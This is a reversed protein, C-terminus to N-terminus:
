RDTYSLGMRREIAVVDAPREFPPPAPAGAERPRGIAEFFHELGPPSVVWLMVLEEPGENIIEHKVDHGLFCATGPVLDHSKGNVMVRGRGRFCIQLEIQNDHSHERVRGGPAITQFGMSLGDFRTNEPYLKPDAHGIEAASASRSSSRTTTPTSASAGAQRSPRSAWPSVTSGRTRRTSSPIPTAAPRCRSGTRRGM